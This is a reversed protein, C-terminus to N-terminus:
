SGAAGCPFALPLVVLLAAGLAVLGPTWRTQRAPQDIARARQRRRLPAARKAFDALLAAGCGSSSRTTAAAARTISTSSPGCDARRSGSSPISARTTSNTAGSCRSASSTSKSSIAEGAISREVVYRLFGSMRDANAFGDSALLRDLQLRIEDPSPEVADQDGFPWYPGSEPPPCRRWTPNTVTVSM